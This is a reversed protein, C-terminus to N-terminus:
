CSEVDAYYFLSAFPCREFQETYMGVNANDLDPQPDLCYLRREAPEQWSGTITKLKRIWIKNYTKQVPNEISEELFLSSVHSARDFLLESFSQQERGFM